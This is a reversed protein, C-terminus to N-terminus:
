SKSGGALRARLRAAGAGDGQEELLLALHALSEAHNPELYLARRLRSMAQTKRGLAGLVVGALGHVEPDLSLNAAPSDLKGLVAEYRGENAMRRLADLDFEDRSDASLAREAPDTQIATETL